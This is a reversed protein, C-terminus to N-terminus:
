YGLAAGDSRPDSGGWLLGTAPDAVIAQASSWPREALVAPHGRERLAELVDRPVDPELDLQDPLWQHHFRPAAVAEQVDMGFDVVHLVTLLTTTIIRPGGPSGTVMYPKGDKLALAPNITQRTRKGPALVNADGDELHFYAM